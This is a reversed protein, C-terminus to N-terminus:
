SELPSMWNVTLLLTLLLTANAGLLLHGHEKLVAVTNNFNFFLFYLAASECGGLILSIRLAPSCM